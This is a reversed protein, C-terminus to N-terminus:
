VWGLIIMWSPRGHVCYGDPEVKCGCPTKAYGERYWRGITNTTPAKEVQIATPASKQQYQELTVGPKLKRYGREKSYVYISKEM